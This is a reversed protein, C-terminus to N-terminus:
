AAWKKAIDRLNSEALEQATMVPHFYVQAKMHFFPEGYRTIDTAKQVDAIFIATRNGDEELFYAAEPRLESLIRQMRDDFTGNAITENIHELDPKVKILFRMARRRKSLKLWANLASM